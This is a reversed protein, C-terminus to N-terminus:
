TSGEIFYRQFVFFLVLMPITNFMASTILLNYETYHASKYQFLGVPLTWMEKTDLVLLSWMFENWAGQFSLIAVATIAPKVLPLIIQWFTRFRSAGDIRASEELEKPLQKMFQVMLFVSFPQVMLPLILGFFTNTLNFGNIVLFKQIIKVQTPIMMVEVSFNLM